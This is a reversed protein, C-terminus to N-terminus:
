LVDFLKQPILLVNNKMMRFIFIAFGLSVSPDTGYYDGPGHAQSARRKPHFGSDCDLPIANAATSHWGFFGSKIDHGKEIAATFWKSAM